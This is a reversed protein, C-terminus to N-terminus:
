LWLPTLPISASSNGQVGQTTGNGGGVSIVVGYYVIDAKGTAGASVSGQSGQSTSGTFSIGGNVLDTTNGESIGRIVYDPANSGTWRTFSWSEQGTNQSEKTWSYSTIGFGGTINSLGAGCGAPTITINVETTVDECSQSAQINRNALVSNGAYVTLSVNETPRAIEYDSNPSWDGLCYARQVNPNYGWNASVVCINSSGNVTVQTNAGIIIAM